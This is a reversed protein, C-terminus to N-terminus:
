RAEGIECDVGFANFATHLRQYAESGCTFYMLNLYERTFWPSHHANGHKANALCHAAEHVVVRENWQQRAIAFTGANAAKDYGAGVPVTSRNEHAEIRLVMWYNREWWPQDRWSDVWAQIEEISAFTKGIPVTAEADYVLQQQNKKM